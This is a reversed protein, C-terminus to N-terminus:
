ARRVNQAVDVHALTTAHWHVITLQTVIDDVCSAHDVSEQRGFFLILLRVYQQSLSSHSCCIQLPLKREM